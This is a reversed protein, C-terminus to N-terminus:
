LQYDITDINADRCLDKKTQLDLAAWGTHGLNGPRALAHHIFRKDADIKISHKAVYSAFLACPNPHVLSNPLDSWQSDLYRQMILAAALRGTAYSLDDALEPDSQDAIGLVGYNPIIAIEMPNAFLTMDRGQQYTYNCDPRAFFVQDYQMNHLLEHQRLAYSLQYDLWALRWYEICYSNWQWRSMFPLQYDQEQTFKCYKFNNNKFDIHLSNHTVTKTDPMAIYWDPGNYVTDLFEITQSKNSNWTRAHGRLLIATKM